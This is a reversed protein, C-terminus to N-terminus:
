YSFKTKGITLIQIFQGDRLRTESVIHPYRSLIEKLIGLGLGRNKGKTSYGSQWIKQLDLSSDEIPNKVLIILEEDQIFAVQVQKKETKAAAELANDLLIGLSRLLDSSEMAISAIPEIAEIILQVGNEEGAVIKTMLLTKVEINKINTLQNAQQISLQLGQDMKLLKQSIYKQAAVLDGAEMHAYAGAAVNKYDHQIKRLEQQIKELRNVYIQQQQVLLESNKLRQERFYQWFLFLSLALVLLYSAGWFILTVMSQNQASQLVSHIIVQLIFYVVLSIIFTFNPFALVKQFIRFAKRRSFWQFFFIIAAASLLGDGLVYAYYGWTTNLFSQLLLRLIAASFVQFFSVFLSVCVFVFFIIRKKVQPFIYQHVFIGIITTLVDVAMIIATFGLWTQIELFPLYALMATLGGYLSLGAYILWKYKRPSVTRTLNRIGLYIAVQWSFNMITTIVVVSILGM